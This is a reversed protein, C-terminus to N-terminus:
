GILRVGSSGGVITGIRHTPHGRTGFADVVADIGDSAVVALYGIGMNFVRYMEDDPV